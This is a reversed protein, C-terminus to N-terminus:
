TRRIRRHHIARDHRSFDRVVHIGFIGLFRRGGTVLWDAITHIASGTCFGIIVTLTVEPNAALLSRLAYFLLVPFDAVLVGLLGLLWVWLFLVGTVVFYFYALRLLPAFILSHSWFHRHPILWMYPRWIWFLIGWRNDIASDLDLDPSFMVGSIIHAGVLWLTTVLADAHVLLLQSRCFSYSLPVLAVGTIVTLIDHTRSDPM